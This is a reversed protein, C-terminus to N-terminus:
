LTSDRYLYKEGDGNLLWHPHAQTVEIFRLIVQAPITCGNEYNVWTRFPVHLKEALLPGGHQGYLDHRIERVRAALASKISIWDSKPLPRDM